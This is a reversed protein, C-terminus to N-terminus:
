TYYDGHQRMRIFIYLHILQGIIILLYFGGYQGMTIFTYLDIGQGIKIFSFFGGHLAITYHILQVTTATIIM